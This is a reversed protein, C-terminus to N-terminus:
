ESGTSMHGTKRANALPWLQGRTRHKSLPCGSTAGKKEGIGAAKDGKAVSAEICANVEVSPPLVHVWHELKVKPSHVRPPSHGTERLATSCGEGGDGKRGREGQGGGEGRGMGECTDVNQQQVQIGGVVYTSGTHM